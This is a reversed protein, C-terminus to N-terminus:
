YAVWSWSAWIHLLSIKNQVFIKETVPSSNPLAPLAFRPMPKNLLATQPQKTHTYMGRWLFALVIVFVCFPLLHRNYM